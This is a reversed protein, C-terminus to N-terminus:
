AVMKNFLYRERGDPYHAIESPTLARVLSFGLFKQIKISVTNAKDATGYFKRIGNSVAYDLVMKSAKVGYGRGDFRRSVFAGLEYGDNMFSLPKLKGLGCYGILGYDEHCIALRISLRKGDEDALDAQEIAKEVFSVADSYLPRIGSFKFGPECFIGYLPEIDGILFDRIYIKGNSVLM